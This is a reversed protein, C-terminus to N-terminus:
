SLLTDLLERTHNPPFLHGEGDFTRIKAGRITAAWARAVGPLSFSDDTAEWVSTPSTITAPDFGWPALEVLMDDILAMPGQRTAEVLTAIFSEALAPNAFAEVEPESCGLSFAEVATAPHNRAAIGLNLYAKAATWPDDRALKWFDQKGVGDLNDVALTIPATALLVVSVVRSGLVAATAAAYPGGMSWGIVSFEGVGLQDALAELDRAWDAVCRGPHPDSQGLGPRDMTIWRVDTEALIAPDGSAILRCGPGGHLDFVAPGTADPPGWEKYAVRRDGCRVVPAQNGGDWRETTM